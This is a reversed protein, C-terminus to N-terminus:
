LVKGLIRALVPGVVAWAQAQSDYKPTESPILVIRPPVLRKGRAM